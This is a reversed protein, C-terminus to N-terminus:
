CGTLDAHRSQHAALSLRARREARHTRRARGLRAERARSDRAAQDLMDKVHQAGVAAQLASHM